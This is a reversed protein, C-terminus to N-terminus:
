CHKKISNEIITERTSFRTGCEKKNLCHRRRIIRGDSRIRTDIVITTEKCKPCRIGAM